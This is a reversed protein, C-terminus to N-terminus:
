ETYRCVSILPNIVEILIPECFFDFDQRLVKICLHRSKLFVDSLMPCNIVNIVKDIVVGSIEFPCISQLFCESFTLLQLQHSALQALAKVPRESSLKQVEIM